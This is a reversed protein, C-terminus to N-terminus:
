RQLVVANHLFWLWSFVLGKDGCDTVSPASSHIPLLDLVFRFNLYRMARIPSARSRSEVLLGVSM